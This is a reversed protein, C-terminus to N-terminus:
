PRFEVLLAARAPLKLQRDQIPLSQGSLPDRAQTMGDLMEPFRRLDLMGDEANKNLVLM